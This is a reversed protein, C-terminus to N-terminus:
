EGLAQQVIRLGKRLVSRQWRPDDPAFIQRLRRRSAQARAGHRAGHHWCRNEHHLGAIVRLVPVTGFEATLVEYDRDAFRAQCWTGLGGRITYSLGEAPEWPEVVDRGYAEALSRYRDSDWPHDVFLKYDGRTGLGTHFDVHRVRRAPGVWEPLAKTLIRNSETPGSGGFFLGKPYDYQGAAVAQKLSAMGHQAIAAAARPLFLSVRRSPRTPNLLGDLEAYGDPSGEYPEGERLFNRNCDVNDENVRRDWAMGFPNVAHVLLLRTDDPLDLPRELLAAQVASGMLGEVGHTGSSVVVLRSADDPGLSAADISLASGGPGRARLTRTDVTAGHSLAGARFRARASPYDPSFFTL